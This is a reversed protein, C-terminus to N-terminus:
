GLGVLDALVIVGARERLPELRARWARDNTVLHSVGAVFGTAAILADPPSLRFGARLMAAEHAVDLDVPMPTLNPFERCFALVASYGAPMTRLPRVLTEMVSVTSVVAPNRGPRVFGDILELALASTAEFQDFYAALVSSDLLIRDGDPLAEALSRM